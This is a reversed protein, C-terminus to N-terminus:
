KKIVMISKYINFIVWFFPFFLLTFFSNYFIDTYSIAFDTFNYFLIMTVLQSFFVAFVFTFWDTFISMNVTVNKVYSAVFSVVLYSIASSGMPLSMIVDNVMGALFIHGNGLISSDKLMWYYIIILQLNFSLIEFLNSFQTDIESVSLYYLFFIPGLNFIKKKFNYILAM